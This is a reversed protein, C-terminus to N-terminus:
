NISVSSIMFKPFVREKRVIEKYESDKKFDLEIGKELRVESTTKMFKFDVYDLIPNYFPEIPVTVWTKLVVLDSKLIKDEFTARFCGGKNINSDMNMTDLEQNEVDKSDKSKPMLNSISGSYNEQKKIQGRIGSVTRIEAGIYKSVELASNFMGKIFATKKEIKLPEGILKLKKMISFSQNVELLDGTACIRLHPLDPKINQFAM